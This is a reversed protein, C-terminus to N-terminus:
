PSKPESALLSRGLIEATKKAVLLLSTRSEGEPWVSRWQGYRGSASKRKDLVSHPGVELPDVPMNMSRRAEELALKALGWMETRGMFDRYTRHGKTSRRIQQKILGASAAFDMGDGYLTGPLDRLLSRQVSPKRLAAVVNQELAGGILKGM